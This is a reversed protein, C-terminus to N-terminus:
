KKKKGKTTIKKPEPTFDSKKCKLWKIRVTKVRTGTQMHAVKIMKFTYQNRPVIGDFMLVNHDQMEITLFFGLKRGKEIWLKEAESMLGSKVFETLDQENNIECPPFENKKKAM